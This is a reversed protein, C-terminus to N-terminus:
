AQIKEIRLLDLFKNHNKPFKGTMHHQITRRDVNIDKALATITPYRKYEREQDPFVMIAVYRSKIMEGRPM